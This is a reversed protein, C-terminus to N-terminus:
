LKHSKDDGESLPSTYDQVWKELHEIFGRFGNVSLRRVVVRGEKARFRLLIEGLPQDELPFSVSLVKESQGNFKWLVRIEGGFPRRESLAVVLRGTAHHEAADTIRRCLERWEAPYNVASKERERRVSHIARLFFVLLFMVVVIVITLVAEKFSNM